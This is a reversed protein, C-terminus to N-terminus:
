GALESLQTQYSGLDFYDRWLVILGDPNVEFLGAVPLELWGGGIRFRDIRENFVACMGDCNELVHQRLIKWDVLDAPALFMEIAATVAAAGVIPTIPMNEYSVDPHLSAQITAFDGREIARIFRTVIELANTEVATVTNVM